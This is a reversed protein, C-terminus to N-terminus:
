HHADHSGHDENSDIPSQTSTWNYLYAGKNNHDYSNHYNKWSYTGPDIHNKNLFKHMNIHAFVYKLEPNNHFPIPTFPNFLDPDVKAAKPMTEWEHKEADEARKKMIPSVVYIYFAVIGPYILLHTAYSMRGIASLANPRYAPM